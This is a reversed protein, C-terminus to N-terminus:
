PPQDVNTGGISMIDIDICFVNHGVDISVQRAAFAFFFMSADRPLAKRLSTVYFKVLASFRVFFAFVNYAIGFVSMSLSPAHFETGASMMRSIFFAGTQFVKEVLIINIFVRGGPAAAGLRQRMTSAKISVSPGVGNTSPQQVSERASLRFLDILTHKFTPKERERNMM